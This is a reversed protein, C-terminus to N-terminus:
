LSRAWGNGRLGLDEEGPIGLAMVTFSLLVIALPIPEATSIRGPSLSLDAVVLDFRRLEWQNARSLWTNRSHPVLQYGAASVNLGYTGGPGPLARAVIRRREDLVVPTIFSRRGRGAIRGRGGGSLKVSQGWGLYISFWSRRGLEAITTSGSRLVYRRRWLPGHRELTATGEICREGEFLTPSSHRPTM